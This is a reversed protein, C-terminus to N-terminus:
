SDYLAGLANQTGNSGLLWTDASNPANMFYAYRKVYSTGDMWSMVSALWSRVQAPSGNNTGFETVWLPKNFQSYASQVYSTFQSVSNVDGYYHIPVFDITCGTCNGVFQQLWDLGVGSGVANTVAPAGLAFQGAYPQMYQKYASVAAAVTM